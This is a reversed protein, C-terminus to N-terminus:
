RFQYRGKGHGKVPIILETELMKRILSSATSPKIGLLDIIDSRGFMRTKFEEKLKNINAVTNKNFLSDINMNKNDIDVNKHHIDINREYNINLYRNKLVNTEDLLLNRLFLELYETTEYIDKQVNTYNARVLANRFYWANEAFLNNEVDYGLTRLYEILFVATTRTNGEGFAHIQWLNSIFRAIHKIRQDATLGTYSFEKEVKLDYNLMDRLDMANGYTVTDGDLVWEEKTINYDRIRGAHRYIGEFLRRHISIYQESSFVFSRESLIEAIRSSVKDAEETRGNNRDQRSEYYSNILEKAESFSIDGEISSQATKILYDSPELGDVQQLGIATKWVYDKYRKDPDKVRDYEELLYQQM